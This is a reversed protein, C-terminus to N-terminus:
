DRRVIRAGFRGLGDDVGDHGADGVARIDKAVHVPSSRDGSREFLRGRAVDHDDGTLTVFRGLGDTVEDHGEVVADYGALEQSSAGTSLRISDPLTANRKESNTVGKHIRNRVRRDRPCLIWSSTGDVCRTMPPTRM